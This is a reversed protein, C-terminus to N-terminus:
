PFSVLISLTENQYNAQITGGMQETLHKAISLGLGTSNRANEVTYFRDFLRGVTIPDISKSRNSFQITGNETMTITFAGDSYKLANSIINEFIRNVASFDLNREIRETPIQIQPTIGKQRMAGYFSLISEELARCLDMPELTLELSSSVISYRFLEETLQKLADIRHEMQYLYHSVTESTKEQYLLELYGCIATLPTRLDHSINTIAQKLEMDGQQFRHRETRLAALQRNWESALKRMHRNHSSIGILTNTETTLREALGTSIERASKGILFLKIWLCVVLCILVGIVIWLWFEM